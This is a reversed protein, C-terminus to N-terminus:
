SNSLISIHFSLWLKMKVLATIHYRPIKKHTHTNLPATACNWVTYWLQCQLGLPPFLNIYAM